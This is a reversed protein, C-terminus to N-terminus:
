VCPRPLPMPDSIAGIFRGDPGRNHFALLVWEGSRDRIACGVYLRHDSLLRAEGVYAFADFM